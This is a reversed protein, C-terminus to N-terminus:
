ATQTRLGPYTADHWCQMRARASARSFFFQPSIHVQLLYTTNVPLSATPNRRRQTQKRSETLVHDSVSLGHVGGGITCKINGKESLSHQRHSIGTPDHSFIEPAKTCQHYSPFKPLIIRFPSPFITKLANCSTVDRASTNLSLDSQRNSKGRM